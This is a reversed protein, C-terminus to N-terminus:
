NSTQEESKRKRPSKRKSRAYGDIPGVTWGVRNLRAALSQVPVGIISAADSLTMREGQYLVWVTSTRNQASILPSAWRCNGPEYNGRGDIRDLLAGAPRTGMAKLFNEFILWEECVTIGRGGYNEYDKFKPDLCRRKMCMWSTYTPSQRGGSKHGHKTIGGKAM